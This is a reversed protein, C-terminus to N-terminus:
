NENLSKGGGVRPTQHFYFPVMSTSSSIKLSLPPLYSFVPIPHMLHLFSVLLVLASPHPPHLSPYILAFIGHHGQYQM